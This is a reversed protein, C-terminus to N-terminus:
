DALTLTLQKGDQEVEVLDPCRSRLEGILRGRLTLGAAPCHECAGGLRVTVIEGARHTGVSGGHSRVFEGVSGALLDATVHERWWAQARPNTFDIYAGVGDWFQTWVPDGEPDCILLGQGRAPEFLPHDDLLCPKLTACLRM